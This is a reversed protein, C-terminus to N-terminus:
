KVEAQVKQGIASDMYIRGSQLPKGEFRDELWDAIMAKVDWNDSVGHFENKFVVINKPSQIEDYLNYSNEIPSLEDDEGAVILVPCKIKAGLGKLSLTKAFEDFKKEDEYGAMWMYRDKFIPCALNFITNMGPEHCVYFGSAAKYRHDSAAMQISWFSGMSVGVVGIKEPDIEPRKVLFDMAAKGAQVFNDATCCIRRM